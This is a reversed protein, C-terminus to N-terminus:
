SEPSLVRRVERAVAVGLKAHEAAEFHIGDQDSSVIVEGADLVPVDYWEAVMRYYRALERSKEVAGEFMRDYQSLRAVPPPIILLVAAPAGDARRGFSQAVEVLLGAGQAIDSASVGFRRKLDNTGLMITVLDFPRHSELCPRLYAVGSRGLELPDDWVTTRGNLGEEIVQFGAGLERALVGTWRVDVPFRQRRAPDAGWTNSDGYCVIRKVGDV